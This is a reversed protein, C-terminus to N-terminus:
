VGRRQGWIIKQLQPLVRAQLGKKLVWEAVPRLDLGGVPTFIVECVVKNERLVKEAFLLDGEEAVIFKLQDTPALLEINGMVMRDVMGSSPCKIDMSILLNESCPMEDIPLSGNTEVSLRFSGELLRDILTYVDKQLLPEGGTLCVQLTKYSRVRDVIEPVSIEEGEKASAYATDCWSCQLNCGCTRVFVTPLGIQVGEGQLSRFIESIRM